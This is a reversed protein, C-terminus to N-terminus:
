PLTLRLLTGPVGMIVYIAGKAVTAAGVADSATSPDNVTIGVEEPTGGAKAVRVFSTRTDDSPGVLYVYDDDLGIPSVGSGVPFAHVTQPAGGTKAVRMLDRDQSWYLHTDDQIVPGISVAPSASSAVLTTPHSLDSLPYRDLDGSPMVTYLNDRDVLFQDPKIGPLIKEPTGGAADVRYVSIDAQYWLEGAQVQVSPGFGSDVELIQTLDGGSLPARLVHNTGPQLEDVVYLFGDSLTLNRVHSRASDLTKADTSDLAVRRV